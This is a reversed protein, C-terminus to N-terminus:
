SVICCSNSAQTKELDELSKQLRLFDKRSLDDLADLTLSKLPKTTQILTVLDKLTTVKTDKHSIETSKIDLVIYACVSRYFSQWYVSQQQPDNWVPHVEHPEHFPICIRQPFGDADVFRFRLMRKRQLKNPCPHRETGCWKIRGRYFKGCCQCPKIGKLSKVVSIREGKPPTGQPLNASTLLASKEDM